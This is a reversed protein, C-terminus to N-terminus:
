FDDPLHVSSGKNIFHFAGYIRAFGHRFAIPFGFVDGQQAKGHAKRCSEYDSTHALGDTSSYIPCIGRKNYFLKKAANVQYHRQNCNGKHRQERFIKLLQLPSFFQPVKRNDQKEYPKTTFRVECFQCM